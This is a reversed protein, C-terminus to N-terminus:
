GNRGLYRDYVRRIGDTSHRYDALLRAGPRPGSYELRQALGDLSDADRSLQSFSQDHLLRLKNELQRLFRFGDSLTRAEQDDLWNGLRLAELAELTNSSRLRSDGAGHLLQLYQVLFEVDM